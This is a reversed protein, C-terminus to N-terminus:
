SLQLSASRVAASDLKVVGEYHRVQAEQTDVQQGSVSDLKLLQRYRELDLRANDLLAADRALQGQTQQLQAEFPQPDIEALLEGATVTQGEQFRESLLLGDVRSHLTVTRLPTVTGLATLHVAFEGARATDAVVPVARGAAGRKNAPAAGHGRRITFFILACVAAAVMLWRFM